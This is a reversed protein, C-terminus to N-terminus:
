LTFFAAFLVLPAVVGFIIAAIEYVDIRM